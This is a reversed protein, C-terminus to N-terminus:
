NLRLMKSGCSTEEPNEGNTICHQYESFVGCALWLIIEAIEDNSMHDLEEKSWAGSEKIYRVAKKHDVTFNLKKRWFTVAEDAPGPGSCDDICEQPLDEIYLTDKVHM